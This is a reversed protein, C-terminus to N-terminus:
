GARSVTECGANAGVLEPPLAVVVDAYSRDPTTKIHWGSHRMLELM